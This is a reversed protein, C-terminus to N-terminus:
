SETDYPSKANEADKNKEDIEDMIQDFTVDKMSELGSEKVEEQINQDQVNKAEAIKPQNVQEKASDSAGLSKTADATAVPEKAHQTEAVQKKPLIVRVQYSSKPKSSPSIKKKK